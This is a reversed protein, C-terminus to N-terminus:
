QRIIWKVFFVVGILLAIGGIIVFVDNPILLGVVGVAGFIIALKLDKDMSQTAKTSEVAGKKKPTFYTKLETRLQHRVVRRESKSLQLYKKGTEGRTVVPAEIIVPQEAASAELTEPSMSLVNESALLPEQKNAKYSHRDFFYTYKPTSCASLGIGIAIPALLVIIKNRM